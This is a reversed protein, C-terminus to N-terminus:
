LMMMKGPQREDREKRRYSVWKLRNIRVFSDKGRSEQKEHFPFEAQGVVWVRKQRSDLAAGQAM